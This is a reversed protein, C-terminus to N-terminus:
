ADREENRRGEMTEEIESLIDLNGYARLMSDRDSGGSLVVLTCDITTSVVAKACMTVLWGLQADTM